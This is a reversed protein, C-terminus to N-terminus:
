KIEVKQGKKLTVIAKKWDPTYGLQYRVRKSKGSFIHTNVKRVNIKYINEVAKKIQHKTAKIKVWFLYKGNAEAITSKETHILTNIIDSYMM